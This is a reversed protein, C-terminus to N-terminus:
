EDKRFIQECINRVLAGIHVGIRYAHDARWHPQTTTALITGLM